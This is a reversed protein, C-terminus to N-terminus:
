CSVIWHLNDDDPLVEKFICYNSEIFLDVPQYLSSPHSYINFTHTFSVSMRRLAIVERIVLM